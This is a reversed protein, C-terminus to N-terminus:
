GPCSAPLGLTAMLPQTDAVDPSTARDKEPKRSTPARCSLRDQRHQTAMFSPWEQVHTWNIPDALSVTRLRISVSVWCSRDGSDSQQHSLPSTPHLSEWIVPTHKACGSHTLGPRRPAFTHPPRLRPSHIRSGVHLGTIALAISSDQAGWM